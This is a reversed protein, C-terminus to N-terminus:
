VHVRSSVSFFAEGSASASTNDLASSVAFLHCFPSSINKFNIRVQLNGCVTDLWEDRKRARPTGVLRSKDVAGGSPGGMAPCLLAHHSASPGTRCIGSWDINATPSVTMRSCGRRGKTPTEIPIYLPHRCFSLRASPWWDHDDGHRSNLCPCLPPVFIM